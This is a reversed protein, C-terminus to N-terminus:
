KLLVHDQCPMCLMFIQYSFIGFLLIIHIRVFAKGFVGNRQHMQYINWFHDHKIWVRVHQDPHLTTHRFLSESGTFVTRDHVDHSKCLCSVTQKQGISKGGTLM